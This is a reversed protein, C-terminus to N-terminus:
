EGVLIAKTAIKHQNNPFSIEVSQPLTPVAGRRDHKNTSSETM